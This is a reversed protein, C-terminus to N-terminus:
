KNITAFHYFGTAEGFVVIAYFIFNVLVFPPAIWLFYIGTCAVCVVATLIVAGVGGALFAVKSKILQTVLSAIGGSVLAMIALVVQSNITM